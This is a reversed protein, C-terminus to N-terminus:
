MPAVPMESEPKTKGGQKEFRVKLKDYSEKAGPIGGDNAMEAVKYVALAKNYAENGAIRQLDTCKRTAQNLRSLIKDLQEYLALDNQLFTPNIYSPVVSSLPGELEVLVDDAFVKNEVSISSLSSRQEDTLSGDPLSAMLADLSDLAATMVAPALILDLKNETLNSM